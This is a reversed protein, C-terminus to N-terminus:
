KLEISLCDNASLVKSDFHTTIGNQDKIVFSVSKYKSNGMDIEFLAKHNSCGPEILDYDSTYLSGVKNGDIFIDLRTIGNSQMNSSTTNNFWFGIKAKYKCSEDDKNCKSCYNTADKDICGRKCSSINTGILLSALLLLGNKTIKKM